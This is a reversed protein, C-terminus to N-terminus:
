WRLREQVFTFSIWILNGLIGQQKPCYLTWAETQERSLPRMMLMGLFSTMRERCPKGQTCWRLPLLERGPGPQAQLKCLQAHQMRTGQIAKLYPYRQQGAKPGGSDGNRRAHQTLFAPDDKWLKRHGLPKIEPPTM